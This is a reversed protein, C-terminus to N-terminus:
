RTADDASKLDFIVANSKLMGVVTYEVTAVHFFEQVKIRAVSVLQQSKSPIFEFYKNGLYDEGVLQPRPRGRISARFNNWIAALVSRAKTM